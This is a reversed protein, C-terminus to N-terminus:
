DRVAIDKEVMSAPRKLLPLASSDYVLDKKPKQAVYFQKM